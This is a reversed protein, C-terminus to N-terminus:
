VPNYKEQELVAIKRNGPATEKPAAEPIDSNRVKSAQPDQTKPASASRPWAKKTLKATPRNKETSVPPQIQKQHRM